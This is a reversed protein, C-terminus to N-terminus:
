RGAYSVFQVRYGVSDALLQFVCKIPVRQEAVGLGRLRLARPSAGVEGRKELINRVVAHAKAGVRPGDVWGRRPKAHFGSPVPPNAIRPPNPVYELGDGPM